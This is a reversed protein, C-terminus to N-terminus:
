QARGFVTRIWSWRVTPGVNGAEDTADLYFTHPGLLIGTYTKPSTCTAPFFLDLQCTFTVDQETATFRFTARDSPGDSPGSTITVNPPTADVTWSWTDAESLNRARDMAVVSFTHAGDSVGTYIKPATCDFYSGSDKSCMFTSGLENSVFTFTATRSNTLSPPGSTITVTPSVTDVTWAWVAPLSENGAEDFAIATFVHLRDALGTYTVWHDCDAPPAGDLSCTIGGNEPESSDIEFTAETSNAFEAPGSEITVIPPISDVAWREITSGARGSEPDSATIKLSNDGQPLNTVTHPSSCTQAAAGNLSCSFTSEPISAHFEFRARTSTDIDPPRSDVTILPPPPNFWPDAGMAQFATLARRSSDVWWDCRAGDDIGRHYYSLAKIEPWLKLQASADEFWQAKGNPDDPDEITGLEGILMPKGEEVGYDYMHQFIEEFSRWVGPPCTFWNYGDSGILDVYEDGPYWEDAGHNIYTYSLLILAWSVNTVGAAEFRDHIHRWAAVFEASTGTDIEGSDPEHHFTFFMPAGFAKIDAARDDIVDDHRGNAIDRWKVFAQGESSAQWSMMLITGRDRVWEEFDTPFVDSWNHFARRVAIKRGILEEFALHAQETNDDEDNDKVNAATSGFWAGEEPLKPGTPSLPHSRAHPKAKAVGGGGVSVLLLMLTTLGITAVLLRRYTRHTLYPSTM